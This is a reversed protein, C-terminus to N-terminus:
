WPDGQRRPKVGYKYPWHVIVSSVLGPVRALAGSLEELSYHTSRLDYLVVSEVDNAEVYLRAWESVWALPNNRQMAILVNRGTFLDNMDARIRVRASYEGFDVSLDDAASTTLTTRQARNLRQTEPGGAVQGDVRYTADLFLKELNLLPPGVMVIREGARFVDCFVTQSDFLEHYYPQQLEPPRPPRRRLTGHVPLVLESTEVIRHGLAGKGLHTDIPMNRPYQMSNGEVPPPHYVM